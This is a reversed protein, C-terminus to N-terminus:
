VDRRRSLDCHCCGSHADSREVSACIAACRSPAGWFECRSCVRRGAGVSALGPLLVQLGYEHAYRFQRAPVCVGACVCTGAGGGRAVACLFGCSAGDAEAMLRGYGRDAGDQRTWRQVFFALHSTAGDPLAMRQLLTQGAPTGAALAISLGLFAAPLGFVVGAATAAAKGSPRTRRWMWVLWGILVPLFVGFMLLAQQLRTPNFLNPMFGRAQSQATVFYPLYIVVAGVALLIGFAATTVASQILYTRDLTQRQSTVLGAMLAGALLLWYPPYDWTNLFILGGSVVTILAIGAWGMPVVGPLRRWGARWDPPEGEGSRRAFLYVSLAMGIVVLAVPMALVHPHNDGLIYSFAPFEDIVEVHGGTLDRDAIVRSSRWWWWDYGIYWLGSRQANEPFGNVDLWAALSDIRAGQAYLWELVGQLNGIVAVFVAASLGAFGSMWGARASEDAEDAARGAQDECALATLNYAVGFSGTLLLGYWSAQGITFATAPPVNALRGITTLLWYGLYYYSIPYGSLWADRPPFVPSAWISNMFMLDMPQETHNAAPDHIRVWTWVVFAALFLAEVGIAARRRALSMEKAWRSAIGWGGFGYSLGAVIALALWAGGAENRLLGYSTGLWLTVGALFPGLIKAFAYGRDPLQAFFRVALPLVAASALQIVIYWTLFAVLVDV